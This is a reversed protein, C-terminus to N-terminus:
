ASGYADDLLVLRRERMRPEEEEEEREERQFPNFAEETARHEIKVFAFALYM